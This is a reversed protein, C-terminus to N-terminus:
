EVRLEVVLLAGNGTPLVPRVFLEIVVHGLLKFLVPEDLEGRRQLMAPWDEVLGEPELYM